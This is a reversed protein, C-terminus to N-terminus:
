DAGNCKLVAHYYTYTLTLNVYSTVARGTSVLSVQESM